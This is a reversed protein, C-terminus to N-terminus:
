KKLSKYYVKLNREIRHLCSYFIERTEDDLGQGGADLAKKIKEGELETIKRGEETLTIANRYKKLEDSQKTEVYGMTKLEGVARSIASKDEGCKECLEVSTLGNEYKSLFYLCMVHMGKLGFQNMETSKIQKISRNISNVDKVFNEFRDRM